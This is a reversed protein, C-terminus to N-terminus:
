DNKIVGKSKVILRLYTLEDKLQRTKNEMDSVIFGIKTIKDLIHERKM